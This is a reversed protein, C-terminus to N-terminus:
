WARSVSMLVRPVFEVSPGFSSSITGSLRYATIWALLVERSFVAEINGDNDTCPARHVTCRSVALYAAAEDTTLLRATADL